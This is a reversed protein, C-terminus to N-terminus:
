RRERLQALASRAKSDISNKYEHKRYSLADQFFQRAEKWEKQEMALYGLQLCANPAFYWESDGNIRIVDHYLSRAKASEGMKHFLRAKRYVFEVQDKKGTFSNVDMASAVESAEAYYGGDTFYRLKVLAPPPPDKELLAKAAYRDAETTEKGIGKAISFEAQAANRKNMVWYCIGMKYYADKLYNQGKYHGLFTEYSQISEDYLGKHLLLEGKLYSLYPFSQPNVRGDMQSIAELAQESRSSKIFLNAQLFKTAVTSDQNEATLERLGDEPRELVFGLIFAHWLNAELALPHSSKRLSELEKLGENVDGHMDLVDLIWNYKDPVSGIMVHLLGSTKLAARYHPFKKRLDRTINYSKRLQIAADLEHGFKLYVFAWHLHTEAKLFLENASSAKRDTREDFAAEYVSFKEANEGLILEVAEALAKVYNGEPSSSIEAERASAPDLNLIRDYAQRDAKRFSFEQGNGSFCPFLFLCVMIAAKEINNM